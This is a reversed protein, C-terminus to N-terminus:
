PKKSGVNGVAEDSWIGVTEAERMAAWAAMCCIFRGCFTTLVNSSLADRPERRLPLADGVRMGGGSRILWDDGDRGGGDAGLTAVVAAFTTKGRAPAEGISVCSGSFCFFFFSKEFGFCMPMLRSLSLRSRPNGEGLLSGPKDRMTLADVVLRASRGEFLEEMYLRELAETLM